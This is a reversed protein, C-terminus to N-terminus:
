EPTDEGEIRADYVISKNANRIAMVFEDYFEPAIVIVTYEETSFYVVLKNSKKFKTVEVIESVPTKNKVFGFYTYLYGDKIVNGEKLLAPADPNIANDILEAVDQLEDIDKYVSQLLESKCEAITARLAPLWKVAAALNLMDKPRTTQYLIRTILREM